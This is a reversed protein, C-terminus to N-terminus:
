LELDKFRQPQYIGYVIFVPDTDGDQPDTPLLKGNGDLKQPDELHHGDADLFPRKAPNGDLVDSNSITGGRGDPDGPNLNQYFGEDLLYRHWGFETDIVMEYVIEWYPIDKEFKLKGGINQMKAEFPQVTFVFGLEPKNITFRDNNVTDRYLRAVDTPFEPRYKTIRLTFRSSDREPPPSYVDNASNVCPGSSGFKRGKIDFLEWPLNKDKHLNKLVRARVKGLPLAMEVPRTTSSYQIDIEDHWKRPDDEKKGKKDRGGDGADPSEYRCVVNWAQRNGPVRNPTIEVCTLLPNVDNGCQYFSGIAPLGPAYSVTHPGDLPDTTMVRYVATMEQQGVRRSGTQGDWLVTPTGSIAM